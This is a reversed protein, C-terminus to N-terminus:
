SLAALARNTIAIAQETTLNGNPDFRNNGVGNIIGAHVPWGLESDVWHGSVDTFEHTFGTTELDMVKAVRNIIAAIQARTLTGDPDFKGSGVGNIIGLANAALVAKSTTDTFAGSNISVGKDKMVDDISKGSSAEILNVFMQAVQGRAVSDRYCTQIEVPVLGAQKASDVESTAWASPTLPAKSAPNIYVQEPAITYTPLSGDENKVTTLTNGDADTFRLGSIDSTFADRGNGFKVSYTYKHNYNIFARNVYISGSQITLASIEDLIGTIIRGSNLSLSGYRIVSSIITCGNVTLNFFELDGNLIGSGNFTVTEGNDTGGYLSAYNVSGPALTITFGEPARFIPISGIYTKGSSTSRLDIGNFVMTKTAATYTWGDGSSDESFSYEPSSTSTNFRFFSEGNDQDAMAVPALTLLLMLVLALPLIRKLM